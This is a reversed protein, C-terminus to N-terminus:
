WSRRELQRWTHGEVKAIRGRPCRAHKDSGGHDRHDHEEDNQSTQIGLCNTCSRLQPLSVKQTVPVSNVLVM